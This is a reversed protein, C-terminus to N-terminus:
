YEETVDRGVPLKRRSPTRELGAGALLGCVLRALAGVASGVLVVILTSGDTLGDYWPKFTLIRGKDSCSDAFAQNGSFIVTSSFAGFVILSVALIIKKM